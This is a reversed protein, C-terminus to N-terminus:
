NGPYLGKTRGVRKVLPDPFRVLYSGVRLTGIVSTDHYNIAGVLFHTTVGSPLPAVAAIHFESIIPCQWWTGVAIM